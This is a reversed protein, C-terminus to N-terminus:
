WEAATAAALDSLLLPMAGHPITTCCVNRWVTDPISSTQTIWEIARLHPHLTPPGMIMMMMASALNGWPFPNRSGPLHAVQTARVRHPPLRSARPADRGERNVGGGLRPCSAIASSGWTVCSDPAWTSTLSAPGPLPFPMKAVAWKLRPSVMKESLGSTLGAHWEAKQNHGKHASRRVPAGAAAHMDWRM